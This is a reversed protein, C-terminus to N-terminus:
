SSEEHRHEGTSNRCHCGAKSSNSFNRAWTRSGGISTPAARLGSMPSFVPLGPNFTAISSSSRRPTTSAKTSITMVVSSCCWRKVSHLSIIRPNRSTTRASSESRTWIPDCGLWRSTWCSVRCSAYPLVEGRGLGIFLAHFEDDLSVPDATRAAESLGTWARALPTDPGVEDGGDALLEILRRDPPARFLRALLGYTDSRFRDAEDFASRDRNRPADDDQRRAPDQPQQKPHSQLTSAQTM